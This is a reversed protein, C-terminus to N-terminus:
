LYKSTRHKLLCNWTLIWPWIRFYLHIYIYANVNEQAVIDM